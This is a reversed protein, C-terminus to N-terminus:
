EPPIGFIAADAWAALEDDSLTQAEAQPAQEPRDLYPMFDAPIAPDAGEARLKGAYNAITSAVIGARLDARDEGWPEIQYYWCWEQFEAYSLVARLEQITRGMALALRFLM